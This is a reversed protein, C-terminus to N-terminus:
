AQDEIWRSTSSGESRFARSRRLNTLAEQARRREAGLAQNMRVIRETWERVQAESYSAGKAPDISRVTRQFEMLEDRVADFDGSTLLSEARELCNGPDRQM